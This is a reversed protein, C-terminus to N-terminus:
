QLVSDQIEWYQKNYITVLCASDDDSWNEIVDIAEYQDTQDDYNEIMANYAKEFDTYTGIVQVEHDKECKWIVVYITNM